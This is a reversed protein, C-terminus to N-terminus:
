STSTITGPAARVMVTSSTSVARSTRMWRWSVCRSLRTSRSRSGRTRCTISGMSAPRGVGDILLHNRPRESCAHLSGERAEGGGPQAGVPADIRIAQEAVAGPRAANSLRTPAVPSSHAPDAAPAAGPALPRLGRAGGLDPRRGVGPLRPRDPPRPGKYAIKARRPGLHAHTRTEDPDRIPRVPTASSRPQNRRSGRPNERAARGSEPRVGSRGSGARGSDALDVETPSDRGSDALILWLSSDCVMNVCETLMLPTCSHVFLWDLSM